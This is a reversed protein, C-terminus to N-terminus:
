DFTLFIKTQSKHAPLNLRLLAQSMFGRAAIFAVYWHHEGSWEMGRPSVIWRLDPFAEEQRSVAALAPFHGDPSPHELKM